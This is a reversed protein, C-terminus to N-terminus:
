EMERDTYLRSESDISGDSAEVGFRVFTSMRADCDLDGFASATFTWRGDVQSSDYQYSYRHPDRPEFSLASWASGQSWDVFGSEFRHSGSECRVMHRHGPPAMPSSPPFSGHQVFHAVSADQLRRLNM